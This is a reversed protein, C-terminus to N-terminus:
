APHHTVLNRSRAVGIQLARRIIFLLAAIVLLGGGLLLPMVSVPRTNDLAWIFLIPAGAAACLVSLLGCLSAIARTMAVSFM